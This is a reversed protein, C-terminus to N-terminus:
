PPRWVASRAGEGGGGWPGPRRLPPASIRVKVCTQREKDYSVRQLQFTLVPPFRKFWVAKDVQAQLRAAGRTVKCRCRRRAASSGPATAPTM